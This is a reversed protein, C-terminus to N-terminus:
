TLEEKEEGDLNGDRRRDRKESLRLAFNNRESVSLAYTTTLNTHPRKQLFPRRAELSPPLEV